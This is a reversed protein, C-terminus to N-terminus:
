LCSILHNHYVIETIGALLCYLAHLLNGALRHFKVLCVNQVPFSQLLNKLAFRNVGDDMECAKLCYALRNRLRQLIVVVINCSGQNETIHHSLM